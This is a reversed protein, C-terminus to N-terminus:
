SEIRMATRALDLAERLAAHEVCDSCPPAIHCSCNADPPTEICGLLAQLATELAEVRTKLVVADIWDAAELPASM